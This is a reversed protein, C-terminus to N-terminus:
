EASYLVDTHLVRHKIIEGEIEHELEEYCDDKLCYLGSGGNEYEVLVNHIDECEIVTGISFEPDEDVVKMGVRLDEFKLKKRDMTKEPPTSGGVEHTDTM